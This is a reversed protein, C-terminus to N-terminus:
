FILSNAKSSKAWIIIGNAILRGDLINRGKLFTTKEMRIVNGIVKKLSEELLNSIIKMMCGILNVPRCDLITLPDKTKPVLTIFSANIGFNIVFHEEFHKVAM